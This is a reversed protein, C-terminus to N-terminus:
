GTLFAVAWLLFSDVAWLFLGALVVMAMVLITTRITEQRTPWVVKHLEARSAQSFVWLRRGQTTYFFICVLIFAVIIWAILRIAIPQHSFRYNISIALIFGVVIVSWLFVDKKSAKSELKTNKM